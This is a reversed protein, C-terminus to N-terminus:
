TLEPLECRAQKHTRERLTKCLVQKQRGDHGRRADAGANILDPAYQATNPNAVNNEATQCRDVGLGTDLSTAKNGVHVGRGCRFCM